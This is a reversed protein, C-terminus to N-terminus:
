KERSEFSYNSLVESIDIYIKELEKYSGEDTAIEKIAIKLPVDKFNVADYIKLAQIVYELEDATPITITMGGFLSLFEFLKDVDLVYVLESLVSYESKDKLKYLAFLILSYVDKEKLNNLSKAINNKIM